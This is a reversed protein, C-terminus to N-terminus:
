DINVAAHRRRRGEFEANYADMERKIADEEAKTRKERMQRAAEAADEIMRLRTEFLAMQEEFGIVRRKSWMQDKNRLIDQFKESGSQVALRSNVYPSNVDIDGEVQQRIAHDVAASRQENTLERGNKKGLKKAYAEIAQEKNVFLDAHQRAQRYFAMRKTQEAMIADMKEDEEWELGIKTDLGEGNMGPLTWWSWFENWTGKVGRRMGQTFTTDHAMGAEIRAADMVERGAAFDYRNKRSLDYGLGKMVERKEQLDFNKLGLQAGIQGGFTIAALAANAAAAGQGLNHFLSAGAGTQGTTRVSINELLEKFRRSRVAKEVHQGVVMALGGMAGFSGNSAAQMMMAASTADGVGARLQATAKRIQRAPGKKVGEYARFTELVDRDTKAGTGNLVDRATQWVEAPINNGQALMRKAWNQVMPSYRNGGSAAGSRRGRSRQERSFKANIKSVLGDILRREAQPAINPVPDTSPAAAAAASKVRKAEKRGIKRLYNGARKALSGLWGRKKKAM